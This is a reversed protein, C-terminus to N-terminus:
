KTAEINIKLSVEDHIFNDKLNAFISKSGYNARWNTRNIIFNPTQAKISNADMTINAPFSVSRTTGRLTLNGEVTHTVNIGEIMSQQELPKVSSIVFTATPFSDVAFFDASKLHRVLMQNMKPDEIDRVTLANLDMVMEGGVISNNNVILSGKQLPFTGFHTGSPKTGLWEITTAETNAAFETGQDGGVSLADGTIAKEGKPGQMCSAMLVSVAALLFIKTKM